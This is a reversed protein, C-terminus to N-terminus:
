QGQLVANAAMLKVTPFAQPDGAPMNQQPLNSASSTGDAMKMM